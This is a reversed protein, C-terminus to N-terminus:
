WPHRIEQDGPRWFGLGSFHFNYCLDLEKSGAMGSRGTGGPLAGISQVKHYPSSWFRTFAMPIRVRLNSMGVKAKQCMQHSFLTTASISSKRVFWARGASEAQFHRLRPCLTTPPVEFVQSHWLYVYVCILCGSKPNQLGQIHFHSNYCLDLEKSGVIGSRSIGSPLAEVSSM